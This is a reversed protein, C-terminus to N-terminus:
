SQRALGEPNSRVGVWVAFALLWGAVLSAGLVLNMAGGPETFGASGFITVTEIAQEAFAVAGLMGLWLPLGASRGLALLTVPAIMTMTSGTLVPGWFVAVDLVTRATAPELRNAHLALGGWSWAQVTTSAIFALAGVFFVDRHPTPLAGRLLAIVVAFLPGDITLMWVYWRVGQGHERFWAVVQAGSDDAHPPTGLAVAGAVYLVGAAIAAGLLVRSALPRGRNSDMAM